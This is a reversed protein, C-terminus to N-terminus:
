SKGTESGRKSLLGYGYLRVDSSDGRQHGGKQVEYYNGGRWVLYSMLLIALLFSFLYILTDSGGIFYILLLNLGYLSLLKARKLYLAATIMVAGWAIATLLAAAAWGAMIYALTLSLLSFLIFSAM